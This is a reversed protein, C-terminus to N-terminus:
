WTVNLAPQPLFLFRGQRRLWAKATERHPTHRTVEAWFQASHNPHLLHCLEHICVYDSVWEPAGILRWNLKIGSPRCVGWFTSARSLSISAPYLDLTRAHRNLQPLLVAEAQRYLHQILATQRSQYDTEPLYVADGTIHVDPATHTHLPLKRGLYYIESPREQPPPTRSLAQRLAPENARLWRLLAPPSLHPPHSIRLSRTDNPRLIIHKRARPSLLLTISLGDSLTYPLQKM